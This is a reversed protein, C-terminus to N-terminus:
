PTEARLGQLFHPLLRADWREFDLPADRLATIRLMAAGHVMSWAEYALGLLDEPGSRPIIEEDALRQLANLLIQFSGNDHDGPLSLSPTMAEPNGTTFMLLFYDPYDVAFNIYARGIAGLYQAAPLAADVRGMAASLKDHGQACVADIIADKGDFYEYLGAPSYDIRRALARMSLAQPGKENIIQRAANLIAERTRLQRRQRPSRSTM